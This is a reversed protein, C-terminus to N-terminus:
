PRQVILPTVSLQAAIDETSQGADVLRQFAYFQDAPHMTGQRIENEALSVAVADHTDDIVCPIPEDAKIQKRKVRCLQALRRGEGATVRYFGTAHGGEDLETKVVMNQIQGHAHISNALGEIQAETHPMKRVNEDSKKLKDLPIDQIHLTRNSDNM